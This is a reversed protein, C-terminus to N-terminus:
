LFIARASAPPSPFLERLVTRRFDFIRMLSRRVFLRHAIRGVIGLPLEYEVRDLMLTGLPVSWFRHLHHWRRYPGRLQVDVFRSNEEVREIRTRWRFPIGFLSLRYDILTGPSMEEPLQSAIRFNLFEPTIRALNQPDAFFPFVEEVPRPIFQLRELIFTRPM